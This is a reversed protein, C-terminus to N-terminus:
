FVVFQKMNIKAHDAAFPQVNTALHRITEAISAVASLWHPCLSALAKDGRKGFAM